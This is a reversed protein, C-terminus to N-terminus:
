EIQESDGGERKQHLFWREQWYEGICPAGGQHGAPVVPEAKLTRGPVVLPALDSRRQSSWLSKPFTETGASGAKQYMTRAISHSSSVPLPWDATSLPWFCFFPFFLGVKAASGRLKSCPFCNWQTAGYLHSETERWNAQNLNHWKCYSFISM